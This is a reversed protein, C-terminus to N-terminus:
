VERLNKQVAAIIEQPHTYGIGHGAGEVELKWADRNWMTLKGIASAPIVDDEAGWISVVAVYMKALERHEEELECTLMHRESSLVSRLYGRTRVDAAIRDPLDPIVTAGEADAHAGWKLLLGGFAMWQWDGFRGSIRAQKLLPHPTYDMGASALLFLRDVREPHKAAYCTAIAGGMSYGFLCIEQDEPIGLAALLEELQGVFFDRDQEGHPRDSYGRGYLDYTLIRFGMLSLGHFLGSFVWSASSLGHVMVIVPGDVHGHWQYHTVGRSLTAFEGPAERRAANDMPRRTREILWPAAIALALAALFLYGIM